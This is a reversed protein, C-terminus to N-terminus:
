NRTLPTTTPRPATMARSRSSKSSVSPWPFRRQHSNSSVVRRGSEAVPTSSSAGAIILPLVAYSLSAEPPDDLISLTADREAPSLAILKAGVSVGRDIAAAATHDVERGVRQLLDILIISDDESVEVGSLRM